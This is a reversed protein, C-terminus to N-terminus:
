LIVEAETYQNLLAFSTGSQSKLSFITEDSDGLVKVAEPLAESLIDIARQYDKISRAELTAALLIAIELYFPSWSESREARWSLIRSCIHQAEVYGM